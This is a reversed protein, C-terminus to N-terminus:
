VTLRPPTLDPPPGSGARFRADTLWTARSSRLVRVVTAALPMVATGISSACPVPCGGKCAVADLGPRGLCGPCDTAAVMSSSVAIDNASSPVVASSAALNEVTVPNQVAVAVAAVSVSAGFSLAAVLTLILAKIMTLM